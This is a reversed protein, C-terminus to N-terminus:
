AEAEKRHEGVLIESEALRCAIVSEFLQTFSRPDRGTLQFWRDLRYTLSNPHLHIARAAASISMNSAAFAEVAEVLRPNSRAALVTDTMLTRIRERQALVAAEAWSSSYHLVPRLTTTAELASRADELSSAAGPLGPRPAGVGVRGPTLMDVVGTPDEDLADREVLIEFRDGPVVRVVGISAPSLLGSVIEHAAVGIGETPLWAVAVFTGEPDFGLQTAAVATAPQGPAQDLLEFFQHALTLRTGDLARTVRNHARAMVTTTASTAALLLEGVRPLLPAADPGAESTMLRWLEEDASQYAAILEDIAIQQGARVAALDAAAALERTNLERHQSIAAIRNQLQARVAARHEPLPISSYSPLSTRILDTVDNVIGALERTLRACIRSIPKWVRDEHDERNM